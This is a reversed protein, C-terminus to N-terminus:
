LMQLSTIAQRKIAIRKGLGESRRDCYRDEEALAYQMATHKQLGSGEFVMCHDM